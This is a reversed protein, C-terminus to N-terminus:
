VRRLHSRFLMLYLFPLILLIYRPYPLGFSLFLLYCVVFLQLFFTDNFKRKAFDKFFGYLISIAGLTWFLNWQPVPRIELLFDIKPPNPTWFLWKGLLLIRWIEFPHYNPVQNRAFHVVWYHLYAFDFLNNQFFFPMYVILYFVIGFPIYQIYKRLLSFQRKLIFNMVILGGLFLSLPYVKTMAVASLSLISPLFYTQKKQGKLFFLITLLVFFLLPLDLLSTDLQELFLRDFSFLALSILTLVRNNLLMNGIQYVLFLVGIAWFISIVNPNHFLVISLGLFYKGLPPTEPNVNQPSDGHILNWGSWAYLEADSLITTAYWGKKWQSNEYQEKWYNVDYTAVYKERHQYVYNALNLTILFILVLRLPKSTSLHKLPSKIYTKIGGM